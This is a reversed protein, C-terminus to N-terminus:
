EILNAELFVQDAPLGLADSLSQRLLIATSTSPTAM